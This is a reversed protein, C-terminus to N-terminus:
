DLGALKVVLAAADRPTTVNDVEADAFKRYLPEREAALEELPRGQSLPRDKVPLLALPRKVRVIFSNQRLTKYNEERTVVGGGASIVLGSQKGFEKLVESEVKRFTEEGDNKIIDAPTRGTKKLIEADTDVVTRGTLKGIEAAVTSKGSGPMGILVINRMRAAVADRVRDIAGDPIAHGTFLESSRKAQAVLMHLGNFAPIGAAECELLLETKAPNYILDFVGKILPFDRVDVAAAGNNPFMGLPTTNVIIEADAHRDLNGYNNEGSRSIVVTEAGLLRLSECVAVSAGGSGLVLTKRGAVDIKSRKVTDVFGYVDTNDGFLTGDQRRVVTNVSGTRRVTDSVEDMFPLVTKKYPITVNLATWEGNNKLFPGVEEERLEYLKYPYEGLLAHIQPSYSHGLKAGILGCSIM